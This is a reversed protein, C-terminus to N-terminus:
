VRPSRKPIKSTQQWERHQEDRCSHAVFRKWDCEETRDATADDDDHSRMRCRSVLPLNPLQARLASITLTFYLGGRHCHCIYLVPSLLRQNWCTHRGGEGEREVSILFSTCIRESPVTQCSNACDLETRNPETWSYLTKAEWSRTHHWASKSLDCNMDAAAATQPEGAPNTQTCSRAGGGGGPGGRHHWQM